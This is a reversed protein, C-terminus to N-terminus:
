PSPPGGPVVGGVGRRPMPGGGPMGIGMGGRRQVMRRAFQTELKGRQDPTLVDKVDRRAKLRAMIADTRLRAIKDLASREADLNDKQQADIFDARARLQAARDPRLAAQQASALAELRTVQGDTLALQSRLALVARAPPLNFRMRQRAGMMGMGM